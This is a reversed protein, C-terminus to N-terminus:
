CFAFGLILKPSCILPCSTHLLTGELATHGLIPGASQFIPEIPKTILVFSAKEQCNLWNEALALSKPALVRRIKDFKTLIPGLEFNRLPSM